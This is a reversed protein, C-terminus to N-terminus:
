TVNAFLVNEWVSLLNELDSSLIIGVLDKAARCAASRSQITPHSLQSLISNLRICKPTNEVERKTGRASLESQDQGAITM